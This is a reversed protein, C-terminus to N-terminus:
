LSIFYYVLLWVWLFLLPSFLCHSHPTHSHAQTNTSVLVFAMAFALINIETTSLQFQLLVPEDYFFYNELAGSQFSSTRHGLGVVVSVPLELNGGGLYTTCRPVTCEVATNSLWRTLKCDTLGIAAKPSFDFTGFNEGIVVMSLGGQEPSNNASAQKVSPKTYGFDPKQYIGTQSGVEVYMPLFGGVGAGPGTGSAMLQCVVVSDSWWKTSSCPTDGLKSKPPLPLQTNQPFEFKPFAGFNKGFVSVPIGGSAPIDMPVMRNLQPGDYTFTLKRNVKIQKNWGIAVRPAHGYSIGMKMLCVISTDSQWTMACATDGMAGSFGYEKQDGFNMGQVTVNFNGVPPGNSPNLATIDHPEYTFADTLWGRLRDVTVVISKCIGQGSIQPHTDYPRECATKSYGDRCTDCFLTKCGAETNAAEIGGPGDICPPNQLGRPALCTIITDSSWFTQICATGAVRAKPKTDWLGFDNGFITVNVTPNAPLNTPNVRYVSPAKYRFSKDDDRVLDKAFVNRNRFVTLEIVRLDGTGPAVTCSLATDSTWKVRACSTRFSPLDYASQLSAYQSILQSRDPEGPRCFTQLTLESSIKIIKRSQDTSRSVQQLWHHQM